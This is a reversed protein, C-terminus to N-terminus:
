RRRPGPLTPPLLLARHQVLPFSREFFFARTNSYDELMQVIASQNRSRALDQATFGQVKLLANAHLDILTQVAAQRGYYAAFHLASWGQYLSDVSAGAAVASRIGTTDGSRAASVLKLILQPDPSAPQPAPEDGSEQEAALASLEAGSLPRNFILVNDAYGHLTGGYSFNSFELGLSGGHFTAGPEYRLLEGLMRDDLVIDRIRRGDFVLRMRKAVPDFALSLNHWINIRPDVDSLEYLWPGISGEEGKEYSPDLDLLLRGRWIRIDFLGHGLAVLHGRGQDHSLQRFNFSLSFGNKYPEEETRRYLFYATTSANYKGDLYIAGNSLRASDRLVFDTQQGTRDKLDEFTFYAIRGRQLDVAGSQDPAPDVFDVSPPRYAGRYPIGNSELAHIMWRRVDAVGNNHAEPPRGPYGMQSTSVVHGDKILLITGLTVGDEGNQINNNRYLAYIQSHITQVSNYDIIGLQVGQVDSNANVFMRGMYSGIDCGLSLIALVPRQRSLQEFNQDTVAVGQAALPGAAILCGAAICAASLLKQLHM